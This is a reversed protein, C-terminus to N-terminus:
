CPTSVKPLKLPVYAKQNSRHLSPTIRHRLSIRWGSWEPANVPNLTNWHHSALLDVQDVDIVGLGVASAGQNRKGCFPSRGSCGDAQSVNVGNAGVLHLLNHEQASRLEISTTAASAQRKPRLACANRRPTCNSMPRDCPRKPKSASPSTLWPSCWGPSVTKPPATLCCGRWTGAATPAPPAERELPTLQDLVRKADAAFSDYELRHRLDSLPRGLDTPILNFLAVAPPTYRQIRLERDLFITAIQTSSM